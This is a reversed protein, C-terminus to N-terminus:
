LWPMLRVEKEPYETKIEAAMEVGASGGGVVVIFQSRQIQLLLSRSVYGCAKTASFPSPERWVHTSRGV